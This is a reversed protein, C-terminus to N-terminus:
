ATMSVMHATMTTTTWSMSVRPLAETLTLSLLSFYIKFKFSFIFIFFSSEMRSHAASTSPRAAQPVAAESGVSAGAVSGAGARGGIGRRSLELLENDAGGAGRVGLDELGDATLELGQAILELDGNEVVVDQGVEGKGVALDVRVVELVLWVQEVEVGLVAGVEDGGDGHM